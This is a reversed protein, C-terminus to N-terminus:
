PAATLGPRHGQGGGWGPEAGAVTGPGKKDGTTLEDYDDLSRTAVEPADALPDHGRITINVSTREVTHTAVTQGWSSLTITRAPIDIRIENIWPTAQDGTRKTM